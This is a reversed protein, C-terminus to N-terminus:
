HIRALVYDFRKEGIFFSHQIKEADDMPTLITRHMSKHYPHKFLSAKESYAFSQFHLENGVWSVENYLHHWNESSAHSLSANGSVDKIVEIQVVGKENAWKGVYRDIGANSPIGPSPVFDSEQYPTRKGEDVLPKGYLTCLPAIKDTKLYSFQLEIGEISMALKMTNRQFSLVQLDFDRYPSTIQISKGDESIRYDAVEVERGGPEACNFPHLRSKGDATYEVVNAIGNRLPMMAWIGVVLSKDDALSLTESNKPENSVCAGLLVVALPVFLLKKM